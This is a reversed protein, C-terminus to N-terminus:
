VAVHGAWRIRKSNIVRVYNLSSYPDNLKENHLKRWEGTVEDSKPGFIRRLVRNEFMTLRREEWLALSWMKRGDFCVFKCVYIFVYMSVNVYTCVYVCLCVCVYIYMCVYICVHM